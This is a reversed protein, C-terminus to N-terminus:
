YINLAGGKGFFRLSLRVNIQVNPVYVGVSVRLESSEVMIVM